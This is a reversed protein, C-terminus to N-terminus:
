GHGPGKNGIHSYNVTILATHTVNVEVHYQCNDPGIDQVGVMLM